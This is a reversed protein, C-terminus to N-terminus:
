KFESVAEFASIWLDNIPRVPNGGARSHRIFSGLHETGEEKGNLTRHQVNSTRHEDKEHEINM